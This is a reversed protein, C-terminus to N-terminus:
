QSNGSYNGSSIFLYMKQEKLEVPQKENSIYCRMMSGELFGVYSEVAVVL